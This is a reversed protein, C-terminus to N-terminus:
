RQREPISQQSAQRFKLVDRIKDVALELDNVVDDHPLRLVVWGSILLEYDRQRDNKFAHEDSHHYYGDVEVVIRHSHCALDVLPTTGRVTEVRVNFQFLGAFEDDRELREALMMEGRSAPHPRGIVPSVTVRSPSPKAEEVDTSVRAPERARVHIAESNVSDLASSEALADPLILAVRAGTNSALWEAARALGLLVEPAPDEDRIILALLLPSPDLILALQTAHISPSYGRPRLPEGLKALRRAARLWPASAAPSTPEDDDEWNDFLTLAVDALRDVADDILARLYPPRDYRIAVLRFGGDSAVARDEMAERVKELLGPAAFIARARGPPPTPLRNLEDDYLTSM